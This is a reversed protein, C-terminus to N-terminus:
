QFDLGIVCVIHLGLNLVLFANTYSLGTRDPKEGWFPAVPVAVPEFREGKSLLGSRVKYFRNLDTRNRNVLQDWGTEDPVLQSWDPGTKRVFYEVVRYSTSYNARSMADRAGAKM